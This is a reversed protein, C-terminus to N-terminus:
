GLLIQKSLLKAIKRLERFRLKIQTFFFVCGGRRERLLRDRSKEREGEKDACRLRIVRENLNM